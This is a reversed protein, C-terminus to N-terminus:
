RASETAGPGAPLVAGRLVDLAGRARRALESLSLSRSRCAEDSPAGELVLLFFAERQEFPLRNFRACGEFLARPDLGLPAAFVTWPGVASRSERESWAGLDEGVVDEIAEDVREALWRDLAPEGRWAYARQASAALARALVREVDLLLARAALRAAVRERLGLPDDPVLRALVERPTGTLLLAAPALRAESLPAGIPTKGHASLDVPQM